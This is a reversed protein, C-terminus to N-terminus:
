FEKLESIVIVPNQNEDLSLLLKKDKESIKSEKLLSITHDEKIQSPLLVSLFANGKVGYFYNVGIVESGGLTRCFIKQGSRKSVILNYGANQDINMVLINNNEYMYGIDKIFKRDELYKMSNDMSAKVFEVTPLLDTKLVAYKNLGNGDIKYIDKSFRHYYLISNDSSFLRQSYGPVSIEDLIERLPFFDSKRGNLSDEIIISSNVNGNTYVRNYVFQNDLVAFDIFSIDSAKERFTTGKDAYRILKGGSIDWVYVNGQDDVDVDLPHIYEGSGHGLKNIKYLYKGEENFVFISKSTSKDIVFYQGNKYLLKDVEGILSEATTELPIYTVSKVLSSDILQREMDKLEIEMVEASATGINEQEATNSESCGFAAICLLIYIRKMFRRILELLM